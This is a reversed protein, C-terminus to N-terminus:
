GVRVGTMEHYHYDNMVRDPGASIKIIESGDAGNELSMDIFAKLERLTVPDTM